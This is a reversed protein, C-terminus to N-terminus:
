SSPPPSALSEESARAQPTWRIINPCVKQVLTLRFKTSRHCVKEAIELALLDKPQLLHLMQNFFIFWRSPFCKPNVSGRPEPQYVHTCTSIHPNSKSIRALDWMQEFHPRTQKFINDVLLPILRTWLTPFLMLPKSAWNRCKSIRFIMFDLANIHKSCHLPNSYGCRDPTNNRAKHCHQVWTLSHSM